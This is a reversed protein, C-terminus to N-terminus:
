GHQPSWHILTDILGKLVPLLKDARRKDYVTTAQCMYTSQALELQLGHIGARPRGYNRTIYGGQFRGDLVLSFAPDIALAALSESVLGAAASAGRFSGLNLDPLVGDFLLPVVNLISHADLLVAHGFRLKLAQLEKGLRAHYPMWVQKLRKQAEDDAPQQSPQYLREGNFTLQPLLGTGAGTYLAANDAPRNLDIVYRSYNAVLLGAGREAVWQYLRDVFWDTDPLLLARPTLRRQLSSPIFTGAHPISVLLPTAGRQFSFVPKMGVM